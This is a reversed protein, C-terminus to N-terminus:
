SRANYHAQVRAASLAYTYIAVDAMRAGAAGLSLGSATDALALSTPTTNQLAGDMYMRMSSGDFTAVIYHWTGPLAPASTSVYDQANNQWRIMQVYNGGDSLQVGWGNNPGGTEKYALRNWGSSIKTTNIWM